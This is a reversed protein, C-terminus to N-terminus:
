YMSFFNAVICFSEKPEWTMDPYTKGKSGILSKVISYSAMDLDLIPNKNYPLAPSVFTFVFMGCINTDKLLNLMESLENAQVSESRIYKGNLQKPNKPDVIMWGRAGKDEAGEYTCCGFETIVVPKGHTFHKQLREIYTDRNKNQRYYDLCVYDFM